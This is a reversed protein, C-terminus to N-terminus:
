TVALSSVTWTAPYETGGNYNLLLVSRSSRLPVKCILPWLFADDHLHVEDPLDQAILLGCSPTEVIPYATAETPSATTSHTEGSDEEATLVSSSNPLSAIVASITVFNIIRASRRVILEQGLHLPRRFSPRSCALPIDFWDYHRSM